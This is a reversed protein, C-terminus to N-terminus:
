GTPLTVKVMAPQYFRWERERAIKQLDANPNVPFPNHALELMELDFISNGFSVDLDTSLVEKLAKAKGPGSTIAGLHGTAVGNEIDVRIALVREAPISLAQVAEEIV